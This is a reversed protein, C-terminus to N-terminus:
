VVKVSNNYITSDKTTMYIYDYLFVPLSKIDSANEVEGFLNLFLRYFTSYIRNHKNKM